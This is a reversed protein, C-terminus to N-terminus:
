KKILVVPFIIKIIIINNSGKSDNAEEEVVSIVGSNKRVRQRYKQPHFSPSAEVTEQLRATPEHIQEKKGKRFCCLWILLYLAGFVCSISYFYFFV